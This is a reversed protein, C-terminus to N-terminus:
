EFKSGEPKKAVAAGARAPEAPQFIQLDHISWFLGDCFRDPHHPHVERKGAPICNGTLPLRHRPRPSRHDVWNSRREVVGSQLRAPLRAPVLGADLEIRPSSPKRRCNSKSGCARAGAAHRHRLRTRLDAMLRRRHRIPIHSATVKWEKRNRLRKPLAAATRRSDMARAATATAARVRAVDSPEILPAATALVIAFTRLSQRSGPMTM